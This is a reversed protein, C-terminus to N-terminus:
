ALSLAGAVGSVRRGTAVLVHRGMAVLVHPARNRRGGRRGRWRRSARGRVVDHGAAVGQRLDGSRVGYRTPPLLDVVGVPVRDAVRVDDDDALM